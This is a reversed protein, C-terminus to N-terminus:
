GLVVFVELLRNSNNRISIVSNLEEGSYVIRSYVIRPTHIVPLLGLLGECSDKECIDTLFDTVTPLQTRHSEEKPFTEDGGRTDFSHEEALALSFLLRLKLCEPSPRVGCM